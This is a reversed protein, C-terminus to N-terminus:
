NDKSFYTDRVEYKDCHTCFFKSLGTKEETAEIVVVEEGTFDHTKALYKSKYTQQCGFCKNLTYGIEDHTPEVYEVTVFNHNCGNRLTKNGGFIVKVESVSLVSIDRVIAYKYGTAFDTEITLPQYEGNVLAYASDCLKNPLFVKMSVPIKYLSTDLTGDPTVEFTMSEKDCATYEITIHKLEEAYVLVDEFTTIWLLDRYNRYLYECHAEFSGRDIDTSNVAEELVCHYLEVMWYQYKICTDISSYLSSGVPHGKNVSIAKVHYPNFSNSPNVFSGGEELRNGIVFQSLYSEYASNIHAYPTAYTLVRQGPFMDRLYMIADKIEHEYESQSMTTPEKHNYGHCGLDLYGRQFIKNWGEIYNTKNIFCVGLMMTGRFGYKEYQDSIITGTNLDYGDDFTMTLATAYGNYYPTLVPYSFTDNVYKIFKNDGEGTVTVKYPTKDETITPEPRTSSSTTSSQTSNVTSNVTSGATSDNTSGQTSDATSNDTSPQSADTQTSQPTSSETTTGTNGGSCSILLLMLALCVLVTIIKKM